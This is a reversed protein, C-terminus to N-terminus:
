LTILENSRKALEAISVRGKKQIFDAVAAMEESSIYIFKGRDDTRMVGTIRGITAREACVKLASALPM